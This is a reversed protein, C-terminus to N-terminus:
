IRITLLTIDDTQEANQVHENYFELTLKEQQNFDQNKLQFLFDKFGRSGVRKNTTPNFQDIMGDTFLYLLDDKKLDHEFSQFTTELVNNQGISFRNTKFEILEEKSGIYFSGKAGSYNLKKTQKNIALLTLDMGNTSIEDDNNVRNKFYLDLNTLILNLDTKHTRILNELQQMAVTAIIAGSVGHGTCDIVAIYTNDEIELLLYSDGSVNDKPKYLIFHGSFASLFQANRPLLANQINKAYEISDAIYNNKEEIVLKSAVLETNNASLLANKKEIIKNKRLNIIFLILAIFILVIAVILGYILYKKQKKQASVELEKLQKEKLNLAEQNKLQNIEQEKQEINIKELLKEKELQQNKSNIRELELTQNLIALDKQIRERELQQFLLDKSKLENQQELLQLDSAQQKTTILSNKLELDKKAEDVLDALLNSELIKAEIAKANKASTKQDETKSVLDKFGQYKQLNKQSNAFDSNSLYTQYLLHYALMKNQYDEGSQETIGECLAITTTYKQQLYANKAMLIKIENEEIRTLYGVKLANEFNLAAEDYNKEVTHIVGLLQSIKCIVESQKSAKNKLIEYCITKSRDYQKQEKYGEALRLYTYQIISDQSSITTSNKVYEILGNKPFTRNQHANFIEVSKEFYTIGDKFNKMSYMVNGLLQYNMVEDLKSTNQSNGINNQLLLHATGFYGNKNAIVAELFEQQFNSRENDWAVNKLIESADAYNQLLFRVYGLLADDIMLVTKNKEDDVLTISKLIEKLGSTYDRKNVYQIAKIQHIGKLDANSYTNTRELKTLTDSLKTLDEYLAFKKLTNISPNKFVIKQYIMAGYDFHQSFVNFHSLVVIM